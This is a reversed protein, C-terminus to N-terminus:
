AHCELRAVLHRHEASEQPRAGEGGAQVAARRAEERRRKAARRAHLQEHLAGRDIMRNPSRIGFTKQIRFFPEPSIGAITTMIVLCMRRNMWCLKRSTFVVPRWVVLYTASGFLLSIDILRMDTQLLKEFRNNKHEVFRIINETDTEPTWFNYSSTTRWKRAQQEWGATPASVVTSTSMAPSCNLADPRITSATLM